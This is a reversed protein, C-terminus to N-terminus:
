SNTTRALYDAHEIADMQAEYEIGLRALRILNLLDSKHMPILELACRETSSELSQLLQMDMPNSLYDDVSSNGLDLNEM